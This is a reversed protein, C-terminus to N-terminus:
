AQQELLADLAEGLRMAAWRKQGPSNQIKGQHAKQVLERQKALAEQYNSTNLCGRLRIGGAWTNAYYLRGRKRPNGM